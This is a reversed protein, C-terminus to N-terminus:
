TNKVDMRMEDFWIQLCKAFGLRPFEFEALRFVIFFKIDSVLGTLITGSYRTPLGLFFALHCIGCCSTMGSIVSGEFNAQM